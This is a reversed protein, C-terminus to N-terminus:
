VPYTWGSKVARNSSFGGLTLRILLASIIVTVAVDVQLIGVFQLLTAPLEGLKNQIMTQAYELATNIGTYVFLGFGLGVLIRKVLALGEFAIWATLSSWFVAAMPIAM